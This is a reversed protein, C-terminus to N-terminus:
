RMEAASEWAIRLLQVMAIVPATLSLFDEAHVPVTKLQLDVGYEPATKHAHLIIVEVYGVIILSQEKVTASGKRFIM